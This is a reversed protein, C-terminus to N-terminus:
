SFLTINKKFWEILQAIIRTRYLENSIMNPNKSGEQYHILFNYIINKINARSYKEDLEDRAFIPYRKRSNVYNHFGFLMNKLEDKTRINTYGVTQTLYNKAHESCEPCPLNTCIIYIVNLIDQRTSNNEFHETKIKEAMSHLLFWTPEGWIMKTEDKTDSSPVISVRTNQSTSVTNTLSPYPFVTNKQKPIVNTIMPMKKM